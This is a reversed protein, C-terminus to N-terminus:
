RSGMLLWALVAVLVLAGVLILLNRGRDAPQEVPLPVRSEDAVADRSPAAKRSNKRASKEVLDTGPKRAPRTPKNQKLEAAAGQRAEKAPRAKARKKKAKQTPEPRAAERARRREAERATRKSHAGRKGREGRQAKRLAKVGASAPKPAQLPIDGDAATRSARGRKKPRRKKRYPQWKPSGEGPTGDDGDDWGDDLGAEAEALLSSPAASGDEDDWASDLSEDESEDDDWGEDLDGTDSAPDDGADDDWGADLEEEGSM